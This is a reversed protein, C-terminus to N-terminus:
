VLGRIGELFARRHRGAMDPLGSLVKYALLKWGAPVRDFGPVSKQLEVASRGLTRM